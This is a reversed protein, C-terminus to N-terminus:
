LYMVPCGMSNEGPFTWKGVKIGWVDIAGKKTWCVVGDTEVEESRSM